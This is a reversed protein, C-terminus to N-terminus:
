PNHIFMGKRRLLHWPCTANLGRAVFLKLHKTSIGLTNEKSRIDSIVMFDTNDLIVHRITLYFQLVMYM